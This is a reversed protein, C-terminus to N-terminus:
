IFLNEQPAYPLPEMQIESVTGTEAFQRIDSALMEKETIFLGHPAGPYIKYTAGKIGAAAQEGTAEIPVTHDM